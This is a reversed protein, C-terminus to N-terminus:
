VDTAASAWPHDREYQRRFGSRGGRVGRRRELAPTEIAAETSPGEDPSDLSAVEGSQGPQGCLQEDTANQPALKEGEGGLALRLIDANKARLDTDESLSAELRRVDELAEAKKELKQVRNKDLKEGAGLQAEIKVIDRVM